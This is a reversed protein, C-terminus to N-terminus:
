RGGRAGCGSASRHCLGRIHLLRGPGLFVDGLLKAEPGIRWTDHAQGAPSDGKGSCDASKAKTRDQDHRQLVVPLLAGLGLEKGGFANLCGFPQGCQRPIVGIDRTETRGQGTLQAAGDKPRLIAALRDRCRGKGTWQGGCDIGFFLAAKLLKIGGPQAGKEGLRLGHRAAACLWRRRRGRGAREEGDM